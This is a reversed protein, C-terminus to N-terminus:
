HRFKDSVYDCSPIYALSSVFIFAKEAEEKHYRRFDEKEYIAINNYFKKIAIPRINFSSLKLIGFVMEFESDGKFILLVEIM